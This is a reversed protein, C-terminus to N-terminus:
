ERKEGPEALKPPLLVPGPLTPTSLRNAGGPSGSLPSSTPETGPQPAANKPDAKRYLNLLTKARELRGHAAREAQEAEALKSARIAETEATGSVSFLRWQKAAAEAASKAEEVELELLRLQAAYEDRLFALDREARQVWQQKLKINHTDDGSIGGPM